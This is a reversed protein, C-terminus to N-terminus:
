GLRGVLSRGRGELAPVWTTFSQTRRELGRSLMRFAPPGFLEARFLDVERGNRTGLCVVPGIVKPHTERRLSRNIVAVYKRVDHASVKCYNFKANSREIQTRVYEDRTLGTEFVKM